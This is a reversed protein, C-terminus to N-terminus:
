GPAGALVRKLHDRLARRGISNTARWAATALELFAVEAQSQVAPNRLEGLWETPKACRAEIQRALKDGIPRSAKIQRLTLHM